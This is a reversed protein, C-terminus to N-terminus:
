KSKLKEIEEQQQLIYLTLEEIKQLLLKNMNALDIDNEQVEKETPIGPLHKHTAIYHKLENLPMLKYDDNFVFDCWGPSKVVVKCFHAAGRVDLLYNNDPNSTGIGIKGDSKIFIRTNNFLIDDSLTANVTGNQPKYTVFRMNGVVDTVIAAGGSLLKQYLM